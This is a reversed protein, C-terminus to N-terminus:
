KRVPSWHGRKKVLTLFDNGFLIVRGNVVDAAGLPPYWYGARMWMIASSCLLMSPQQWFIAYGGSCRLAITSPAAAV